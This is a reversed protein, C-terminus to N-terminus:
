SPTPRRRAASPWCRSGAAPRLTRALDDFGAEWARRGGLLRVLVCSVGDLAPEGPALAVPNAARVGPFGPPLVEIVSRLALIETDATTLVLITMPAGRGVAIHGVLADIDVSAELADALRDWQAERAAVFSVGAARWSSRRRGAVAALFAAPLRRSRAPRPPQHRRVPGDTSRGRRRRHRRLRRGALDVARHRRRRSVVGHHIEYGALRHGLAAGRRQRTLKVPEFRTTVDLWGLGPVCGRDSEVGDPDPHRAGLMQYGGCIGLVPQRPRRAAAVGPRPRTGRFWDLDAVTAKTGPLIVLDPRGLAPRGLDVLRVGVGPSSRWPTSTPSTRSAPCGSSPSTSPAPWRRPRPPPPRLGDLALSDEADLASTPLLPLVGLTPM